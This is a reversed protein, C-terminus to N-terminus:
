VQALKWRQSPPALEDLLLARSFAPRSWVMNTYPAKGAPTTQNRWTLGDTSTSLCVPGLAGDGHIHFSQTCTFFNKFHGAEKDWWMGAGGVHTGPAAEALTPAHFVTTGNSGRGDLLFGDDVFLQRGVDVAVVAPRGAATTYWPASLSTRNTLTRNPPWAAPLVIGNYLTEATSSGTAAALSLRMLLAM